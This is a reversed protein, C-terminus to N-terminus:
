AGTGVFSTVSSAPLTARFINEVVAQPSQAVLDRTADTIWPTLSPGTVQLVASVPGATTNVAVVVYARTSANKFATINVGSVTGTTGVRVDGPRVFKSWQGLAYLRKTLAFDSNRGILGENDTGAGNLEWYMWLSSNGSTLAAHIDACMVLAQTMSADFATFYSMETQWTPVSASLPAPTGNYQHTGAASLYPVATGDALVATVYAAANDWGATEPLVIQPVPSLAAIKPGLVKLFAVMEATTYLMSQYSATWDPENQVGLAYLNVGANSQCLAQFAALTTAWANYNASLLHGGNNDTGNDKMAGPASWPRAIIRAGYSAAKTMNSYASTPTGDTEIGGGLVSLGIGTSIDFFLAAQPDTLTGVNRDHAGFGAITQQVSAFNVTVDIAYNDARTHFM